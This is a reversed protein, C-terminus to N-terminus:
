LAMRRRHLFLRKLGLVVLSMGIVLVFEVSLRRIGSELLSWSQLAIAIGCMAGAPVLALAIMVGATLVSRNYAILTAGGASAVASIAVGGLDITKWYSLLAGSPEYGGPVTIHETFFILFATAIIAGLILMVYGRLSDWIGRRWAKSGTIVGLAIRTLPEFGPAIVMAGIVIHLSNTLIGIAALFGSAAMLFQIGATMNSEKAMMMEMEEWIAESTDRAVAEASSSSIISGPESTTITTGSARGVGHEDLLQALSLTARNTLQLSIVDGQPQVSTGRQVRLGILGNLSQVKRVLQDTKEAPVVIEVQKPMARIIRLFNNNPLSGESVICAIRKGM